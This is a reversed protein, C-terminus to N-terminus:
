AGEKRGRTKKGFPVAHLTGGGAQAIEKDAPNTIPQPSKAAPTGSGIDSVCLWPSGDRWVMVVGHELEIRTVDNVGVQVGDIHSEGTFIQRNFRFSKLNM